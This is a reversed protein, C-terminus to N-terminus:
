VLLEIIAKTLKEGMQCIAMQTLMYQKGIIDRGTALDGSVVLTAAAAREAAMMVFLKAVEKLKNNVKYVMEEYTLDREPKDTNM